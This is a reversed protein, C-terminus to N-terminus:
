YALLRSISNTSFMYPREKFELGPDEQPQLPRLMVAHRDVALGRRCVSETQDGSLGGVQAILTQFGKDDM